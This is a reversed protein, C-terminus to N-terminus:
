AGTVLKAALTKRSIKDAGARLMVDKEVLDGISAELRLRDDVPQPPHLNERIDAFADDAGAAIKRAADAEQTLGNRREQAHRRPRLTEAAGGHDMVQLM